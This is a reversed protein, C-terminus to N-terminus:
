LLLVFVCVVLFPTIISASSSDNDSSNDNSSNNSSNSSDSSDSSNSSNSSDSSDPGGTVDILTITGSVENCLIVMGNGSPSDEADIFLVGEPGLDGAALFNGGGDEDFFVTFDRTNIYDVFEPEDDRPDEPLEFMMVGGIKDLSVLLFDIGGIHAIELGEPEPGKKASRSDFSDSNVDDSNFYLPLLEATKDEILTGSLYVWEKEKIDWIGFCRGGAAYLTDVLGDNNSDMNLSSVRFNGIGDVPDQLQTLNYGTFSSPNLTLDKVKELEAYGDYDRDEGENALILYERGNTSWYKVGDPQFVATLPWEKINIKGDSDTGDLKADEIFGLGIVEEVEYDNEDDITIYAIGNNEQLGVYAKAGSPDFAIYEPEMDQAFTSGVASGYFRLGNNVQFGAFNLSAVDFVTETNRLNNATLDM